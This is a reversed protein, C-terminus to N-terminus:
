YLGFYCLLYLIRRRRHKNKQKNIESIAEPGDNAKPTLHGDDYLYQKINLVAYIRSIIFEPQVMCWSWLHQGEM